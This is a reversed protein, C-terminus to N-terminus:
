LCLKSFVKQRKNIVSTVSPPVYAVPSPSRSAKEEDSPEDLALFPYIRPNRSGSIELEDASSTVVDLPLDAEPFAKRIARHSMNSSSV